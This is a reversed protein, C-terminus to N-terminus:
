RFSKSLSKIHGSGHLSHAEPKIRLANGRLQIDGSVDSVKEVPAHFNVGDAARPLEVSEFIFQRTTGTHGSHGPDLFAVRLVKRLIRVTECHFSVISILLASRASHVM